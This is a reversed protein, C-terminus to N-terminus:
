VNYKSYDDQSLQLYEIFKEHISTNKGFLKFIPKQDANYVVRVFLKATILDFPM